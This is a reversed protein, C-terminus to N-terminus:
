YLIGDAIHGDRAMARNRTVRLLPWVGQVSRLSETRFPAGIRIWKVLLEIHKEPLRGRPPMELDDYRVAKILLSEEPNGPVVALGSEGGKLLHDRADLRLKGKQKEPGHCRYCNEALFPKITKEAFGQRQTRYKAPIQFSNM